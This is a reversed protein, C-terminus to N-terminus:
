NYADRRHDAAIMVVLHKQDDIEYFFRFDGIRYRWTDPKYNRLKKINKGFYPQHSLQPYVFEKLKILVRDKQGSFDLNLDELFGETEIVTFKNM